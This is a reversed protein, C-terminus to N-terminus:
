IPGDGRRGVPRRACTGAFACATSPKKTDPSVQQGARLRESVQRLLFPYISDDVVDRTALAVPVHALDDNWFFGCHPKQTLLAASRIEEQNKAVTNRDHCGLLM